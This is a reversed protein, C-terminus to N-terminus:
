PRDLGDGARDTCGPRPHTIWIVQTPASSQDGATNPEIESALQRALIRRRPTSTDTSM